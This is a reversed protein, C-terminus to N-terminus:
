IVITYVCHRDAATSLHYGIAKYQHHSIQSQVQGQKGVKHRQAHVYVNDLFKIYYLNGIYLSQEQNLYLRFM